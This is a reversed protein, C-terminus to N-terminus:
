KRNSPSLCLTAVLALSPPSLFFVFCCINVTFEGAYPLQTRWLEPQEQECCNFVELKRKGRFTPDLKRLNCLLDFRYICSDEKRRREELIFAGGGGGSERSDLVMVSAAPERMKLKQRKELDKSLSTVTALFPFSSM